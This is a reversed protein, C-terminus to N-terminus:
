ERSGLTEILRGAEDLDFPKVLYPRGDALLGRVRAPTTDGTMLITRGRLHPMSELRELLQIGDGPMRVDVLAADLPLESAIRFATEADGAEEVLHGSRGLFLSLALRLSSEDDAVLVRLPASRRGTSALATEGRAPEATEPRPFRVFVATGRGVISDVWMHGGQERVLVAAVDLGLPDPADPSRPAQLLTPLQARPIGPGNDSLQLIVGDTSERTRIGLRREGESSLLEHEAHTLLALVIRQLAGVEVEVRTPSPDLDREITVGSTELAYAKLDIVEEVMVSLDVPQRLPRIQHSAFGLLNHVVRAIRTCEASIIDLGRSQEPSAAETSLLQAFSKITALPNNVEHAVGTALEGIAALREGQRRRTRELALAARDEALAIALPAGEIEFSRIGLSIPVPGRGTSVTAELSLSVRGTSMAKRFRAEAGSEGLEPLVETFLSKGLIEGRPQDLRLEAIGNLYVVEGASNLVLLAGPVHELIAWAEPPAASRPHSAMGPYDTHRNALPATM